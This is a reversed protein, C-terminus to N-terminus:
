APARACSSWALFRLGGVRVPQYRRRCGYLARLEVLAFYALLEFGLALAFYFCAVLEIALALAIVALLEFARVLTIVHKFTAEQQRHAFIVVDLVDFFALVGVMLREVRQTKQQMFAHRLLSGVARGLLFANKAPRALSEPEVVVFGDHHRLEGTGIGAARRDFRVDHEPRLGPTLMELNELWERLDGCVVQQIPSRSSARAIFSM